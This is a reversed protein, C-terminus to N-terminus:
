FCIAKFDEDEDTELSQQMVLKMERTEICKGKNVEFCEDECSLIKSSFQLVGDTTKCDENLNDDPLFKRKTGRDSFLRPSVKDFYM